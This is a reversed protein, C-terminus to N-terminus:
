VKYEPKGIHYKNCYDCHYPVMRFCKLRISEENAADIAEKLTDYGIKENGRKNLHQRFAKM